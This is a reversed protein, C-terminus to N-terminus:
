SFEENELYDWHEVWITYFVTIESEIMFHFIKVTVITLRRDAFRLIRDMWAKWELLLVEWIKSWSCFYHVTSTWRIRRTSRWGGIWTRRRARGCSLLAWSWRRCDSQCFLANWRFCFTRYAWQFCNRWRLIWGYQIQTKWSFYSSELFIRRTRSATSPFLTRLYLRNGQVFRKESMYAPFKVM